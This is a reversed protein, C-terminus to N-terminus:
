DDLQLVNAVDGAITDTGIVGMVLIGPGDEAWAGCDFSMGTKSLSVATLQRPNVVHSVVTGTTLGVTDGSLMSFDVKGPDACDAADTLPGLCAPNSADPCNVTRGTVVLYGAGAGGAAGQEVLLVSPDDPMAGHSDVSYDLGVPTGGTCDIKGTSGAADFKFCLFSNDVIKMGGISDAALALPAIGGADPTGATLALAGRATGAVSVDGGALGTSFFHSGAPVAASALSFTRAGLPGAPLTSTTTSITTSTTTPLTPATTAACRLGRGQPTCSLLVTACDDGLRLTARVITPGSGLPVAVERGDLMTTVHGERVQVAARRWGAAGPTDASRSLFLWRPTGIPLARRFAGPGLSATYLVNGGVQSFVLQSPEAAPDIVSTGLVFEGKQRWRDFSGAALGRTAKFTASGTVVPLFRRAPLDECGVVPVGGDDAALTGVAQITKGALGAAAGQFYLDVTGVPTVGLSGVYRLLDRVQDHDPLTSQNGARFLLTTPAVLDFAFLQGTFSGPGGGNIASADFFLSYDCATIQGAPGFATPRCRLIDEDRFSVGGLTAGRPLSFLVDCTPPTARECTGDALVDVADWTRADSADKVANGDLYLRFSGATYPLDLPSAPTFLLLDKPSVAGVGPVSAQSGIRLVLRRDPLVDLGSVSSTLGVASGDLLLSWTCQTGGAGLSDPDCLLLDTNGASVGGVVGSSGLSVVLRPLQARAPSVLLAVALLATRVSRLCREGDM